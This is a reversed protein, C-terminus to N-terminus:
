PIVCTRVGVYDKGFWSYLSINADSTGNSPGLKSVMVVYGFCQHNVQTEGNGSNTMSYCGIVLKKTGTNDRFNTIIM